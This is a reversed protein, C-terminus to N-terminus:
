AEGLEEALQELCRKSWSRFDEKLAQEPRFYWGLFEEPLAPMREWDWASDMSYVFGDTIAALSGAMLGYALNIIGPQGASRRFWWRHGTEVCERILVERRKCNPNDLEGEWYERIEDANDDYYADTGGPVDGVMFWAYTEKNWCAPDDLSFPVQANDTCAQLKVHIRPRSRIGISDLFRHLEATSRDCIASFTPLGRARPYVEFTTSM